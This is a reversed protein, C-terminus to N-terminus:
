SGGRPATRRGLGSRTHRPSQPRPNLVLAVSRVVHDTLANAGARASPWRRRPGDRPRHLSTTLGSLISSEVSPNFTWQEVASSRAWMSDVPRRDARRASDLCPAMTSAPHPLSHLRQQQREWAGSHASIVRRMRAANTTTNTAAQESSPGLSGADSEDLAVVSAAEVEIAEGLAFAVPSTAAPVGRLMSNSSANPPTLKSRGTSSPTYGSPRKKRASWLPRTVNNRASPSVTPVSSSRRGATSRPPLSSPKRLRASSGSNADRGYM